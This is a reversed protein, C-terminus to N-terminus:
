ITTDFNFDSIQSSDKFCLEKFNCFQCISESPTKPFKDIALPTNHEINTCFTYMTNTQDKITGFFQRLDTDSISIEFEEFTPYLYIIKPYIISTALNFNAQAAAAYGKLQNSHKFVNKAGTKWDLIYIDNDVPFLFDMKCYAKLGNLRTEGYGPPEIMWNKKNTLGKMFIWAYCSSGIFNTLCQSIRKFADERNVITKHYYTEIFTKTSFYEDMKKRAFDFFREEDIATDDQQLRRLFAELVDHVVNGTELPVSTLNKLQSIKYSPVDTAYKGYYNYFYQRKCKDFVEYRSISWGLIHTFPYRDYKLEM